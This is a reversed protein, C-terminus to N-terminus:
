AAKIEPEKVVPPSAEAPVPEVRIHFFAGAGDLKPAIHDTIGEVAGNLDRADVDKLHITIELDFKVGRIPEPAKGEEPFLTGGLTRMLHFLSHSGCTPCVGGRTNSVSECDVCLVAHQLPIIDVEQEKEFIRHM